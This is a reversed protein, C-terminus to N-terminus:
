GRPSERRRPRGHRNSAGRVEDRVRPVDFKVLARSKALHLRYGLGLEDAVSATGTTFVQSWRDLDVAPSHILAVSAFEENMDVWGMLAEVGGGALLAEGLRDLSLAAAGRLAEEVNSFHEYFTGRACAAQKTVEAVTPPRPHLGRRALVHVAAEVIRSRQSGRVMERLGTTPGPSVPPAEGADMPFADIKGSPREGQPWAM